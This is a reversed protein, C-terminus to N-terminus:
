KVGQAVQRHGTVRFSLAEICTNCLQEIDVNLVSIVSQLSQASIETV